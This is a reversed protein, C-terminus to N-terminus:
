VPYNLNKKKSSNNGDYFLNQSKLNHNKSKNRKM